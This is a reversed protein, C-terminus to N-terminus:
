HIEIIDGDRIRYGTGVRTPQPRESSRYVVAYRLETALEGHISKALDLVTAGEKLLVPEDPVEKERPEKTWVRIKGIAKLVDCVLDLAGRGAEPPPVAKAPISGDLLVARGELQDRLDDQTLAWFRILVPNRALAANVSYETSFRSIEAAAGELGARQVQEAVEAPDLFDSHGAVEIRKTPLRSVRVESGPAVLYIGLRSLSDALKGCASLEDETSALLLVGDAQRVIDLYDSSTALSFSMPVFVTNVGGIRSAYPKVSDSYLDYSSLGLAKSLFRYRLAPNLYLLLLLLEDKGKSLSLARQRRAQRRRKKDREIEEELKAVQRKVSARLKETGKHDPILSLFARLNGLKEAKTKSAVVKRYQAV